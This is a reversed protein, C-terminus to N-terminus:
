LPAREAGCLREFKTLMRPYRPGTVREQGDPKRTRYKGSAVWTDSAFRKSKELQRVAREWHDGKRGRSADMDDRATRMRQRDGKLPRLSRKDADPDLNPM